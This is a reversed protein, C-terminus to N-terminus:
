SSDKSLKMKLQDIEFAQADCKSNLEENETRLSTTMEVALKEARQQIVSLSYIIYFLLLDIILGIM